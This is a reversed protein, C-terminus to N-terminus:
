CGKYIEVAWKDAHAQTVKEVDWADGERLVYLETKCENAVKQLAEGDRALDLDGWWHEGTPTWIRANFVPISDPNNRRYGSKSGSIMRGDHFGKELLSEKITM